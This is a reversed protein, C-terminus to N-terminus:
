GRALMDRWEAERIVPVGMAAAKSLKAVGAKEGTILFAVKRSIGSSVTAGQARAEAEMEERNGQLKGTFVVVRGRLPGGVDEYKARAGVAPLITILRSLHSIMERNEAVSAWASLEGLVFGGLNSVSRLRESVKASDVSDEEKPKRLGSAAAASDSLSRMDQWLSAFTGYETALSKAMSKGVGHIGLAYVFRDLPVGAQVRRGHTPTPDHEFTPHSLHFRRLEAVLNTASVHGWQPM